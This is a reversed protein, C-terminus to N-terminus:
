LFAQCAGVLIKVCQAKSLRDTTLILDYIAKDEIDINYLQKFRQVESNRRSFTEKKASEYTVNDREAIRKIRTEISATVYINFDSLSGAMWAALQGELVVAGKKAEEKTRSDIENDITEDNECKQSFAELSLGSEKALQRFISGSSVYRLKLADAIAKAYTSKGAGHPGSITIVVM